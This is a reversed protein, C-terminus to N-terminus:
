EVNITLTKFTLFIVWFCTECSNIEQKLSCFLLFTQLQVKSEDFLFVVTSLLSIKFLSIRTHKYLYVPVNILEFGFTNVHSLLLIKTQILKMCFTLYSNLHPKLEFKINASWFSSTFPQVKCKPTCIGFRIIFFEGHGMLMKPCCHIESSMVLKMQEKLAWDVGLVNAIVLCLMLDKLDLMDVFVVLGNFGYILFVNLM